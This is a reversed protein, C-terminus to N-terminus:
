RKKRLAIELGAVVGRGPMRVALVEAYGSNTLNTLQVYPHLWGAERSMSLDMVAYPALGYRQTVAFAPRLKIGHREQVFWEVEARNVPYSFLYQSQQGNLASQAGFTATWSVRLQQGAAPSAQVSTEVGALRVQALNSAQWKAQPGSRLYEIANSQQSLFGTVSVVTSKGRYWDAGGDYSWASEPKLAANSITTPDNYYLDTYTPLRFGYGASGRLKWQGHLLVSAAFTPASVVRGGSLVEERLGASFTATGAHIDADIYGAGRNRGHKGLANSRISDTNEEIGAFIRGIRGISRGHRVAGQWSQDIHNNEYVSPRNRILDYVDAHRRYALAATTKAGLGQTVSAFWGKTREWSPYNGYFQDAGFARDSAAALVDTEGLRTTARGEVSASESRYDRNPMFGSSFDRAGAVVLSSRSGNVAGVFSGTNVGYNGGGARLRLSSEKPRWTTVNVVGGLADSGYITSGAGHLVDIGALAPFPVPIDLNFHSTQADNVRLGNLLVLTQEFSSGRVSIDSQVGVPGRQRIDVSADTRLSDQLSQLQLSREQTELVTVSRASQGLAVPEADGVVTVTDKVDPVVAVPKTSQQAVAHFCNATLLFSVSFARCASVFMGKSFLQLM